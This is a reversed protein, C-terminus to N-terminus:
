IYVILLIVKELLSNDEKSDKKIFLLVYFHKKHHDINVLILISEIFNKSQEFNKQTINEIIKRFNKRKMVWLLCETIAKTSTVRTAGNLDGFSEGLILIRKQNNKSIVEM